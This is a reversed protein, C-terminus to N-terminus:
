RTDVNVSDGFPGFNAEVQDVDRLHIMPHALIIESGISSETCDTCWEQTSILIIELHVSVLKVQGVDRLLVM